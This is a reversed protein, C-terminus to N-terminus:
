KQKKAFASPAVGTARVLNRYFVSYDAYGVKEAAEAASCGDSLLLKAKIM